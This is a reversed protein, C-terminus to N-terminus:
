IAFSHRGISLQVRRSWIWNSTATRPNYYYLCGGTPDWGNMADRAARKSDADPTLWIQGDRVADFAGPQYIVGSITNPFSSSRVRNLVVAGVAVKGIYPEGRAEGHILRSLLDVESTSHGSSATATTKVTATTLQLGMARATAPGVVGDAKLGNRRQFFTVADYTGKGFIGDIAGTYYGWQKLKRQMASVQEGRSGWSLVTSAEVMQVCTCLIALTLAIMATLRKKKEGTPM